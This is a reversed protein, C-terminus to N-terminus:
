VYTYYHYYLNIIKDVIEKQKENLQSMRNHTINLLKETSITEEDTITLIDNIEQLLHNLQPFDSLSRGEQQLVYQIKVIGKSYSEEKSFRRKFDECMADKFNDWLKNPELPNCYMLIRVFLSRLQKPMMFIAAERM